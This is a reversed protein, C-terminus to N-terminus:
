TIVIFALLVIVLLVAIIIWPTGRFVEKRKQNVEYDVNAQSGVKPLHRQNPKRPKQGSSGVVGM